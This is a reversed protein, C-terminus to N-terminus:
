SYNEYSICYVNFLAGFLVSCWLHRAKIVTIRVKRKTGDTTEKKPKTHLDATQCASLVFLLPFLGKEPKFNLRIRLYIDFIVNEKNNM